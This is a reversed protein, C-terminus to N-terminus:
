LLLFYLTVKYWVNIHSTNSIKIPSSESNDGKFYDTASPPTYNIHSIYNNPVRINFARDFLSINNLNDIVKNTLDGYVYSTEYWKEKTWKLDFARGHKVLNAIYESTFNYQSGYLLLCNEAKFEDIYQKIITENFESLYHKGMALQKIDNKFQFMNTAIEQIYKFYDKPFSDYNFRLQNIRRIENFLLEDVKAERILRLFNFTQKAINYINIEGIHTLQFNITFKIITQDIVEYSSTMTTIFSAKKLLYYLSGKKRDRLLYQMYRLYSESQKGEDIKDFYFIINLYAGFKATYKILKGLTMNQRSLKPRIADFRNLNQSPNQNPTLAPETSNFSQFNKIVLGKIKPITLHSLVALRMNSGTFYKAIFEKIQNILEDDSLEDFSHKNGNPFYLSDNLSVQHIIHEELLKTNKLNTFYELDIEAIENSLIDKNIVPDYLMESFEKLSQAFAENGVEFCFSLLEDSFEQKYKGVNRALRNLFDTRTFHTSQQMIMHQSLHALGPLETENRGKNVALGVASLKLSADSILIAELGNNLKVISYVKSDTLSKILESNSHITPIYKIFSSIIVFGLGIFLCVVFMNFLTIEICSREGKKKIIIQDGPFTNDILVSNREISISDINNLAKKPRTSKNKVM